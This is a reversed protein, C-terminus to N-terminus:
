PGAGWMKRAVGDTPRDGVGVQFAQPLMDNAVGNTKRRWGLWGMGADRPVGERRPVELGYAIWRDAVAPDYIM